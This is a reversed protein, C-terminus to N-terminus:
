AGAFRVLLEERSLQLILVTYEETPLSLIQPVIEALREDLEGFRAKLLAEAAERRARQEGQQEGRQEGRQETKQEWDLYAQSLAMSFQEDESNL